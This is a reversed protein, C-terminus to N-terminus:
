FEIDDAWGFTRYCWRPEKRDPNEVVFDQLVEDFIWGESSAVRPFNTVRWARCKQNWEVALISHYGFFRHRVSIELPLVEKRNMHAVSMHTETVELSLRKWVDEIRLASGNRCRALDVLEDYTKDMLAQGSLFYHANVATVLQCDGATRNGNVYDTWRRRGWHRYEGLVKPKM